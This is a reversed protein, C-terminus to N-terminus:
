SRELSAFCREVQEPNEVKTLRSVLITVILALPGSFVLQDVHTLASFLVPRGFLAQCVGFVAAEKGHLFLYCFLAVGFGTLSGAVAGKGTLGKWYLSLAYPALFCSAMLGFFIATARAIVGAGMNFAFWASAVLAILIGIRTVAVGSQAGTRVRGKMLYQEFFDRGVATGITHFQSSLTSMGASLIALMFLYGFWDPLFTSIYTPLVSDVNGGAAAM